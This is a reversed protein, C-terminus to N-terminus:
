RYAEKSWALERDYGLYDQRRWTADGVRGRWKATANDLEAEYRRQSETFPYSSTTM